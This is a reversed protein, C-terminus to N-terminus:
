LPPVLSSFSAATEMRRCTPTGRKGAAKTKINAFGYKILVFPAGM